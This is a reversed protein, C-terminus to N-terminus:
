TVGPVIKAHRLQGSPTTRAWGVESDLSKLITDLHPASFSYVIDVAFVSGIRIVPAPPPTPERLGVIM